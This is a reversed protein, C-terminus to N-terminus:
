GDGGEGVVNTLMARRHVHMAATAVRPKEEVDVRAKTRLYVHATM